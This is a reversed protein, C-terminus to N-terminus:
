PKRWGINRALNSVLEYCAAAFRPEITALAPRFHPYPPVRFGLVNVGGYELLWSQPRNTGVAAAASHDPMRFFHIGISRRYDGGPVQVNPGPGTGPIHRRGRPHYGTSANRRVETQLLLGYRHVLDVVQVQFERTVAEVAAAAEAANSHLTVNM